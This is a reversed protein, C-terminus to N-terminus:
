SNAKMTSLYPQTEAFDSSTKVLHQQAKSSYKTILARVLSCQAITKVEQRFSAGRLMRRPPLLSAVADATPPVPISSPDTSGGASAATDAAAMEGRAGRNIFRGHLSPVNLTGRTIADCQQLLDFAIKESVVSDFNYDPHSMIYQRMWTATTILEGSARKCIFECYDDVMARTEDDCAIIDLYAQILPVLGPFFSSSAGPQSPTNHGMLIESITLEAIEDDVTPQVNDQEAAERVPSLPACEEKLPVVNRRFYFRQGSAANRQHAREMNEHVMSMPTYLNLNFFLIVRSVLGIFVTYAANEFATLQAEMSRFEVRWGIPSDAPPPKWRVTQWNTSQINEFHDTMKSDDIEIRERYIVLPDRIFLHAVHAALVDDVGAARLQEMSPEDIEVDVDNYASRFHGKNSIYLDISDYRSKHIPSAGPGEVTGGRGTSAAAAAAAEVGREAPTRDDVSSAITHWRVDTDALRGHLAPCAATLALFMPALVALHDYLQRSEDVDRAQFTVQLCCCGMGFAMCDMQIHPKVVEATASQGSNAEVPAESRATAAKTEAADSSEGPLDMRFVDTAKDGEETTGNIPDAAPAAAAAASSLHSFEPTMTDRFLPVRIDVKSGRRVRINRTLTKFRPFPNIAEDPVFNSQSADGGPAHAPHTFTGVGMTPFAVISMVSEDESLCSQIRQQRTWINTEIDRLDRVFGGYPLRPVAEVMWNGYEPRWASISSDGLKEEEEELRAIIQDARLSLLPRRASSDFKVIMYEVEDGWLLM